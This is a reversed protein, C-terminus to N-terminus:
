FYINVQNRRQKMQRVYYDTELILSEDIDSNNVKNESNELKLNDSNDFKITNSNEFKTPSVIMSREDHMLSQRDETSRFSNSRFSNTRFDSFSNRSKQSSRVQDDAFLRSNISITGSLRSVSNTEEFIPIIRSIKSGSRSLKSGSRSLKSGSRSLVENTSLVSIHSLKSGSRSLPRNTVFVHQSFVPISKKPTASSDRHIQVSITEDEEEDDEENVSPTKSTFIDDEEELLPEFHSNTFVTKRFKKSLVSGTDGQSCPPPSPSALGIDPRPQPSISDPSQSLNRQPLPPPPSLNLSESRLFYLDNSMKDNSMKDVSNPSHRPTPLLVEYANTYVFDGGVSQTLKVKSNQNRRKNKRENRRFITWLIAYFNTCCNQRRRWYLRSSLSSITSVTKISLLDTSDTLNKSTM